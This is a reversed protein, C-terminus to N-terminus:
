KSKICDAARHIWETAYNLYLIANVDHHTEIALRETIDVLKLYVQHLESIHHDRSELGGLSQHDTTTQANM